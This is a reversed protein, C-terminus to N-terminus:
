RRRRLVLALGGLGLLATSTPEPVERIQLASIHAQGFGNAAAYLDQTTGVATFTGIVYQDNLNVTNGGGGSTDGFTMVRSNLSPSGTTRDEVFWIQIQYDQGDVLASGGVASGDGLSLNVTPGGLNFHARSLLNDYTTDGSNGGSWADYAGPGGAGQTSVFTVGNVIQDGFPASSPEGNIAHHPTGTISVDSSNGSGTSVATASGWTITAAQSSAACIVATALFSIYKMKPQNTKTRHFRAAAEEDSIFEASAQRSKITVTCSLPFM